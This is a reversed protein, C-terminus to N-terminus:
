NTQKRTADEEIMVFNVSFSRREGTIKGIPYVQHQLYWPFVYFDGVKPAIVHPVHPYSGSYFSLKGKVKDEEAYNDPLKLFGVSSMVCETHWHLPNFEHPELMRNFWANAVVIRPIIHKIEPKNSLDTALHEKAADTLFKGHKEIIEVQVKNQQDIRGVLHASHDENAVECNKNFDNLLENPLEFCSILTGIRQHYKLSDM